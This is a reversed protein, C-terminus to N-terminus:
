YVGISEGFLDHYVKPAVAYMNSSDGEEVSFPIKEPHKLIDLYYEQGQRVVWHAVDEVSDESGKIMHGTFPEEQLESSADIFAEQFKLIQEKPMARLIVELAKASKSAKAIIDWFWDSHDSDSINSQNM